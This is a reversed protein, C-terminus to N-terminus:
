YKQNEFLAHWVFAFYEYVVERVKNRDKWWNNVNFDDKNCCAIIRIDKPFMEEFIKKARRTHTPYTVIIVSKCGKEEVIKRSFLANEFTSRSDEETLVDKESAGLSVAYIKGLNIATEKQLALEGCLLIRPAYQKKYIEVGHEIRLNQSSGSPIIIIDSEQLEDSIILHKAILRLSYDSTTLAIAIIVLLFCLFCKCKKLKAVINNFFRRNEFKSDELVM